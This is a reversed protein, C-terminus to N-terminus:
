PSSTGEDAVTAGDPETGLWHFIPLANQAVLVAVPEPDPTGRREFLDRLVSGGKISDM